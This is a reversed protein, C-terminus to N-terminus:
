REGKVKHYLRLDRLHRNLRCVQALAERPELESLEEVLALLAQRVRQNVPGRLAQSVQDDRESKGM